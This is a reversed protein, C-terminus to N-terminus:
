ESVCETSSEVTPAFGMACLVRVNMLYQLTSLTDGKDCLKFIGRWAFRKKIKCM